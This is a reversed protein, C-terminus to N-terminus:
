LATTFTASQAPTLERRDACNDLSWGHLGAISVGTHKGVIHSATMKGEVVPAKFYEITAKSRNNFPKLTYVLFRGERLQSGLDLKKVM